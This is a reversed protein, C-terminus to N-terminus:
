SGGSPALGLALLRTRLDAMGRHVLNRTRVDSWGLMSAIEERRYGALHLKVAARRDPDLLDVEAMIRDATEREELQVDPTSASDSIVTDHISESASAIVTRRARVIDIAASRAAQHVYSATVTEARADDGQTRWLRLRVGQILEDLDADALGARRGISMVMRGFRQIVSEIPSGSPPPGPM